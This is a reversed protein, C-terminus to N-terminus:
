VLIVQRMISVKQTELQAMAKDVENVSQQNAGALHM